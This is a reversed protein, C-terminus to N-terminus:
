RAKQKCMRETRCQWEGHNMSVAQHYLGRTRGTICNM